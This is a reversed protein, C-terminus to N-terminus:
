KRMKSFDFKLTPKGNVFQQATDNKCFPCSEIVKDDSPKKLPFGCNSCTHDAGEPIVFFKEGCTGDTCKMTLGSSDLKHVHGKNCTPCFVDDDHKHEEAKKIVEEVRKETKPVEVIRPEEVIKPEPERRIIKESNKDKMRKLIDKIKDEEPKATLKGSIEELKEYLPKTGEKLIEEFEQEQTKTIPKM